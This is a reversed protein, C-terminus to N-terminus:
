TTRPELGPAAIKSNSVFTGIKFPIGYLDTAKFFNYGHEILFQIGFSSRNERSKIKMFKM